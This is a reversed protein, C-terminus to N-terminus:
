VNKELEEEHADLFMYVCLTGKITDRSLVDTVAHAPPHLNEIRYLQLGRAFSLHFM